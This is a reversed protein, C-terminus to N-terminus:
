CDVEDGLRETSAQASAGPTDTAVAEVSGSSAPAPPPRVIALNPYQEEEATKVAIEQGGELRKYSFRKAEFTDDLQLIHDKVRKRCEIAFHLLEREEELSCQGSRHLLKM